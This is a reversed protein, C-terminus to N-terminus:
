GSGNDAKINKHEKLLKFFEEKQEKTLVSLRNEIIKIREKQSLADWKANEMHRSLKKHLSDLEDKNEFDFPICEQLAGVWYALEEVPHEQPSTLLQRARSIIFKQCTFLINHGKRKLAENDGSVLRDSVIQFAESLSDLGGFSNVKKEFDEILRRVRDIDDMNTSNYQM